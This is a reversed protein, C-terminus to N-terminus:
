PGTLKRAYAASQNFDVGWQRSLVMLDALLNALVDGPADYLHIHGYKETSYQVLAQEAREAMKREEANKM